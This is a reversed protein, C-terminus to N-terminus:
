NRGTMHEYEQDVIQVLATHFDAVAPDSPDSEEAAERVEQRDDDTLQRAADLLFFLDDDLSRDNKGWRRLAEGECLIRLCAVWGALGPTLGPTDPDYINGLEQLTAADMQDLAFRTDTM